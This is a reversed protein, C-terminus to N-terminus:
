FHQSNNKIIQWECLMGTSKSNPIPLRFARRGIAVRFSLKKLLKPPLFRFVLNPPYFWNKKEKYIASWLFYYIYYSM